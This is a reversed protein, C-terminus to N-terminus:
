LSQDRVMLHHAHEALRVPRHAPVVVLELGGRYLFAGLGVTDRDILRLLQPVPGGQGGESLQVRLKDHHRGVATDEGIVDQGQGGLPANVDM